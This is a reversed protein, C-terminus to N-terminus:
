CTPEWPILDGESNYCPEASKTWRKMLAVESHVAGAMDPCCEQLAETMVVALRKAAASAQDDPAECFAEDHIPLILRAGYLDSSKICYMEESMRIIALKMADGALGQFRGNAVACLSMGSRIRGTYLQVMSGTEHVAKCWEFYEHHEPFTEFWIRKITTVTELCALCVPNVPRGRWETVKVEGCKDKGGALICFRLGKYKTRDPGITDEGQKRQQFVLAAEGMLGPFGFNAPKAAQRRAGLLKDTKRHELMYEYSVGALRAGLEDHVKIGSNLAAALNSWGVTELLNQGQTILEAGEWDCAILTHGPRSVICERVGLDRPLQHVVDGYGIRGTEKLVRPRLNLPQVNGRKDIGKELWPIYTTLVKATEDYTALEILQDDGSEYLADRGTSIGGTETLPVAAGTLDYGSSSCDPCGRYKSIEKGTNDCDGCGKGKCPKHKRTAIVRGGECEICDADETNCADDLIVAVKGSGGCHKCKVTSPVQATGACTRCAAKCGYAEATLKKIRATNKALKQEGKETKYKLFGLELLRGQQTARNAITEARLTNIREPDVTLGHASGLDLCFATFTQFSLDSLNRNRLAQALAVEETNLADDIPYTKAQQPWLELPLGHLEAYSMRWGDNAKADTRGLVLDTVMELSYFGRKGSSPSVWDSMSRPDLGLHGQALAHLQEAIQIEFVRDDKYVEFIETYIDLGLKKARKIMVNMDFSINAGIIIKSAILARFAQVTQAEDLLQGKGKHALSGCVLEPPYKGAEILHTETDFAYGRTPLEKLRELRM